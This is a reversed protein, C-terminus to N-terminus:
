ALRAALHDGVRLANAMITLSPNVAASSPFFSADVVYLNDVDHVRCDVNLVSTKPDRGFRVTGCQHGVGEIPIKKKFYMACPLIHDGCEISKLVATFRRTLEQYAETNNDQYELVINGEGDLRVRNEVDPLDETTLWWDVSHRAMGELTFGPALAPAGAALTDGDMKNILQVSGMPFPFSADGWYYDLLALTKQYVTPNPQRSVALIAGNVHKMFCRGLLGSSNNGLGHPHQDSASRLLLAASNVAGCSVAVLDAAFQMREGEVDVEVGTVERGSASTLLRLARASTLLTVRPQKIAPRVCMVEADSKAGLLCPYGDCTNCRICRSEHPQQEDLQLGLPIYSPHLGRSALADHIQQIRPEHSVAPAPYDGSMFPETPDLGRSGHVQYLHEAETYFPEFDGYRVPWAPSIGARHSVEEFDRERLRFLAAGYVKTNGGVWYGTGPHFENGDADKWTEETHYRDKQFVEISSWNAKERPLFRGRELILIRLGRQALRYALTGGGAGTGIVIVDYRDM